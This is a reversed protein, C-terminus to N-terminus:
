KSTKQAVLEDNDNVGICNRGVYFVVDETGLPVFTSKFDEDPKWDEEGKFATICTAGEELQVGFEGSCEIVHMGDAFDAKYNCESSNSAKRDDCGDFEGDEFFRLEDGNNNNDNVGDGYYACIWEGNEDRRDGVVYPYLLTIIFIQQMFRTM